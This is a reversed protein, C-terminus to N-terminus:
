LSELPQNVNAFGIFEERIRLENQDYFRLYVAMQKLTAVDTAEDAM